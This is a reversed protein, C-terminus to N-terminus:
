FMASFISDPRKLDLKPVIKMKARMRSVQPTTLIHLFLDLISHILKKREVPNSEM